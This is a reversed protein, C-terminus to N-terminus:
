FLAYFLSMPYTAQGKDSWKEGRRQKNGGYSPRHVLKNM